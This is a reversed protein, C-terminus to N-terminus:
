AAGRGILSVGIMILPIGIINIFTMPENLFVASLVTVWIFALSIIPYAKSLQLKKLVIVFLIASIGYMICGAILPVNLLIGEPTFSLKGAGLKLMLQAGATLFTTAIMILIPKATSNM